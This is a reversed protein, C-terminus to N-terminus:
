VIHIIAIGIRYCLVNWVYVCLMGNWDNIILEEKLFHKLLSLVMVLLGNTEYILVPIIRAVLLINIM